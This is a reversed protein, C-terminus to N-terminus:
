KFHPMVKSAFLELNDSVKSVPVGPPALAVGYSEVPVEATFERIRKVAEDPTIVTLMNYKRLDEVGDLHPWVNTDTGEFWKAYSNYWYLVGPAFLNFTREPDNSVVTWGGGGGTVRAKAPDKGLAKLEERYTNLVEKTVPGTYGDGYRAARRIAFRNFGGVWIPPNPEQVPRPTVRAGEINFHKGHFTVTEGQWLRRIIQLAEDARAGKTKIDIGYGAYEEPRYGLGVGLDLRGNSIVDLVAGDEAIGVPDYLPLIAINTGVRMKKTRAAVATAAILPSPIYGDDTFHHELFHAEDFGLSEAWVMHDIIDAYVEASSRGSQPPNRFDTSLGFRM